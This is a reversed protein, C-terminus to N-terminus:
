SARRLANHRCCPYAAGRVMVAPSLCPRGTSLRRGCIRWERIIVMCGLCLRAGLRPRGHRDWRHCVSLLEHGTHDARDSPLEYKWRRPAM